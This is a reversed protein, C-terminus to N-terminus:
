KRLIMIPSYRVSAFIQKSTCPVCLHLFNHYYAIIHYFLIIQIWFLFALCYNLVNILSITVSSKPIYGLEYTVYNIKYQCSISLCNLVRVLTRSSLESVSLIHVHYTYISLSSTQALLKLSKIGTELQEINKKKLNKKLDM